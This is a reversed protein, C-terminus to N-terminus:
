YHVYGSDKDLDYFVFTTDHYLCQSGNVEFLLSDLQASNGDGLYISCNKNTGYWSEEVHHMTDGIFERHSYIFFTFIKDLDGGVQIFRTGLEVESKETYISMDLWFNPIYDINLSKPGGETFTVRQNSSYWPDLMRLPLAYEPDETKELQLQVPYSGEYTFSAVNQDEGPGLAPFDLNAILTGTSGNREFVQLQTGNPFPALGPVSRLTVTVRSSPPADEECSGLLVCTVIIFVMKVGIRLASNDM